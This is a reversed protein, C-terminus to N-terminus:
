INIWIERCREMDVRGIINCCLLEMLEGENGIDDGKLIAVM